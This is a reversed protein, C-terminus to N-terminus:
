QLQLLTWSLLLAYAMYHQQMGTCLEMLVEIDYMSQRYGAALRQICYQFVQM